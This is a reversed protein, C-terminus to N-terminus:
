PDSKPSSKQPTLVSFRCQYLISAWFMVAYAHPAPTYFPLPNQPSRQDSQIPAPNSAPLPPSTYDILAFPSIVSILQQISRPPHSFSTDSTSRPPPILM